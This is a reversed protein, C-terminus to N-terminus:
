ILAPRPKARYSILRPHISPLCDEDLEIPRQKDQDERQILLKFILGRDATAAVGFSGTSKVLGLGVLFSVKRHAIALDPREGHIHTATWDQDIPHAESDPNKTVL